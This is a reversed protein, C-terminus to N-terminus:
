TITDLFAQAAPTPNFNSWALYESRTPGDLVPIVALQPDPQIYREPLLTMALNQRILGIIHDTAGAEFAVERHIGAATFALDSQARGATGAPFDAFIQEVLDSLSLEHRGAFQHDSSTVAVLRDTALLRWAAGQPERGEPLGLLGIDLEGARIAAEMEDSGAVQLAIQVEPYAQHFQKLAMPIDIATVTPIVGIRLRGRIKGDAAAADVVAREASELSARAPPLFAEGAATLEVRRSTRAFLMVGLEKELSKIQHSLASQVVFCRAAAKTFNREEAVAIVYRMQQLDM